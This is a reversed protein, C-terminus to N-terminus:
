EHSEILAKAIPIDAPALEFNMLDEIPVWEVKDHVTLKLPQADAQVIIGVLNISGGDYDYRSEMFIEKVTCSLSLEERLERELCEKITEGAEQKGGPFEWYGALSQGSARRAILISDDRIILGAAVNKM